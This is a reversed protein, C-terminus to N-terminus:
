ADRGPLKPRGEWNEGTAIMCTNGTPFSLLLTWSGSDSTTLEVVAGNGTMGVGTPAEKYQEKLQTLVDTRVGCSKPQSEEALAPTMALLTLAAAWTFIKRM